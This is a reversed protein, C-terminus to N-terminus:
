RTNVDSESSSINGDLHRFPDVLKLLKGNLSFIAPSHLLSKAKTLTNVLLALGDVYDAGM